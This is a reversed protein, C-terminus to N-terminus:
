SHDVGVKGTRVVAAKYDTGVPGVKRLVDAVAVPCCTLVSKEIRMVCDAHIEYASSTRM